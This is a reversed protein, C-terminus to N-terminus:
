ANTTEFPTKLLTSVEGMGRFFEPDYQGIIPTSLAKLVRPEVEVPGPTMITRTPVSLQKIM